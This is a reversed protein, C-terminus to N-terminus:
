GDSRNEKEQKLLTYLTNNVNSLNTLQQDLKDRCSNIHRAIINIENIADSVQERLASIMEENDQSGM